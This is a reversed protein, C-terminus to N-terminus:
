HHQHAGAAPRRRVDSSGPVRGRGSGAKEFVLTGRLVQGEKLGERLDLFMLHHGGPKLEVTAGPAIELGGALQKMRMVNDVLSM